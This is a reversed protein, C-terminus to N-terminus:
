LIVVKFGYRDLDHIKLVYEADVPNHFTKFKSRGYIYRKSTIKRLRFGDARELCCPQKKPPDRFEDYLRQKFDKAYQENAGCKKWIEYSDETLKMKVRGITRQYKNSLGSQMMGEFYSFLIEKEVEVRGKELLLASWLPAEWENHDQPWVNNSCSTIYVKDETIRIRSVKEYSM